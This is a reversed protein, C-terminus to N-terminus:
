VCELLLDFRLRGDRAPAAFESAEQLAFLFEALAQPRGATLAVVNIGYFFFDIESSAALGIEFPKHSWYQKSTHSL